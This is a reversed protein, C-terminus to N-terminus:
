LLSQLNPKLTKLAKPNPTEPNYPEDDPFYWFVPGACTNSCTWPYNKFVPLGYRPPFTEQLAIKSFMEARNTKNHLGQLLVM